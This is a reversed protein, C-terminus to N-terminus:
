SPLPIFDQTANRSHNNRHDMGYRRKEAVSQHDGINKKLVSLANAVLAARYFYFGDKTQAYDEPWKKSQRLRKMAAQYQQMTVLSPTEWNKVLERAKIILKFSEEKTIQNHNGQLSSSGSNVPAHKLQREDPSAVKESDNLLRKGPGCAVNNWASNSTSYHPPNLPQSVEKITM